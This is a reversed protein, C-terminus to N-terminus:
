QSAVGSIDPDGWPTRPPTYKGAAQAWAPVPALALIVLMVLSECHGEHCSGGHALLTIEIAAVIDKRIKAVVHVLPDVVEAIDYQMATGLVVAAENPTLAYDDQLWNVLQTTALQLADDALQRDRVVDSVRQEGLAPGNSARGSIVDVTFEVDLSTELANGTL